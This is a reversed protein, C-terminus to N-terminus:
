AAHIAEQSPTVPRLWPPLSIPKTPAYADEEGVEATGLEAREFGRMAAVLERTLDGAEREKRLVNDYVAREPESLVIHAVVTRDQGFRWCRRIAQYYSEYSHSLGVFAMRACVQFNMGFGAVDCHTVLARVRGESFDRLVAEKREPTDKGQVIVAGDVREAIAEAEDLLGYWAIWREDPEANILQAAADARPIVTDRRVQAYEVIGKLTTLFLQGPPVWDVPVFTARIDLPPLRYGDNDAESGTLDSPWKCAIAWTALWQYFVGRAHNKLRFRGSKQDDGKSIFFTSLMDQQSMVGLFAAHNCLEVTDNPAPTATCALRYPTDQFRALLKGKTKGTFTKLVSSEDPVVAPWRSTDFLDLREYNTTVIGTAPASAEDKAYTVPIGWKEGERVFQQAVSLPALILVRSAVGVRILQHAWELAILAKGLGTDAFVAARGKRLAWHVIARQHPKLAPHLADPAVEIGHSPVILRKSRLFAAYDMQSM